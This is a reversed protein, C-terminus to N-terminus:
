RGSELSASSALDAKDLVSSCCVDTDDIRYTWEVVTMTTDIVKPDHRNNTTDTTTNQISM